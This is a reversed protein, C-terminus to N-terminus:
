FRFFVGVVPEADQTFKDTSSFASSLDAAKYVNGRYQFRLGIHPLVTWDVGAGYQFVGKTETRTPISSTTRSSLGTLPYFDTITATVNGTTPSTVLVGGGVLAFPKLNALRFSFVWDGTVEQANAPVAATTIQEPCAGVSGAPCIVNLTNSYAENARHYSYTGEVGMLPNWIHRLELLFGASNSPNELTLNSAIGTKTSSRFAGYVSGAVTTQAMAACSGFGVLVAMVVTCSRLNGM